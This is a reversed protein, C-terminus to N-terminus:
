QVRLRWYNTNNDERTESVNNYLDVEGYLLYVAGTLNLNLNGFGITVDSCGRQQLQVYTSVATSYNGNSIRLTIQRSTDMAGAQNCIRAILESKTGNQRLDSLYLDPQGYSYSSNWNGSGGTNCIWEYRNGSSNWRYCASDSGVYSYGSQPWTVPDITHYTNTSTPAPATFTNYVNTRTYTSSYGDPTYPRYVYTGNSSPVYSYWNGSGPATYVYVINQANQRMAWTPSSPDIDGNTGGSTGYSPSSTYGSSNTNSNYWSVGSESNGWLDYVPDKSVTSTRASIDSADVRSRKAPLTLRNNSLKLEKRSGEFRITGTVSVKRSGAQTYGDVAQAVYAACTGSPISV